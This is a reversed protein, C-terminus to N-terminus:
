ATRRSRRKTTQVLTKLYRELFTTILYRQAVQKHATNGLRAAVKPNELLHIIADAQEDPTDAFLASRGEKLTALAVPSRGSVIPRSQWMEELLQVSVGKPQGQHLLVTSVSRLVSLEVNGVRDMATLILCDGIENARESLKDFLASIEKEAVMNAVVLQADPRHAKVREYVDLVQMPDEERLNFIIQSLIPRDLRIGRQGLVVERVGDTLPSARAALPDIGPQIVASRHSPADPRIFDKYDYFAADFEGAAERIAAWSHAQADRYDRHSHWIWTGEPRAMRTRTLAPLLGVSGTHHVVVVDFEEDYLEANTENFRRWEAEDQRTWEVTYGSLARRQRQDMQWMDTPMRVQQWLTQLGLDIFLPISSSLLYRVAGSAAPSTLHLFRLGRLPAALERLQAIKEAGVIPAYEELSRNTIAVTGFM